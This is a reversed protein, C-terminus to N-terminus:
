RSRSTEPTEFAERFFRTGCSLPAPRVILFRKNAMQGNPDEVGTAADVFSILM